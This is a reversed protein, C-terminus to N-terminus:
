SCSETTRARGIAAVGLLVVAGGLLVTGGVPEHLIASAFLATAFPELYLTAGTRQPGYRAQAHYWLLYALGSCVVGLFGVALLVRPTYDGLLVGRGGIAVFLLAGVVMAWTTTRLAGSRQVPRIGLLTYATWSLCSTLQLADGFRAQELDPLDDLLILFVGALAVAMGAWGSPALLQGLFLTAGLALVAPTFAVIWGTHLASTSRLGYAQLGVHGGLIVGLLLIRGRDGPEPLLAGRRWGLCALLLAAGIVLRIAVLAWPSLGELAVRVAVFSGGWAVVALLAPWPLSRSLKAPM